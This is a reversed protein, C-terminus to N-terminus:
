KAELAALRAALGATEAQVTALSQELAANKASLEQVAKVLVSTLKSYDLSLKGDGNIGIVEPVYEQVEQALFGIERQEGFRETDIWNYSVPILNSVVELGYTLSQVNTKLTRDSATNTLLGNADSYVARNGTGSLTAVTLGAAAINAQRVGQCYLGLGVGTATDLYVYNGNAGSIILSSGSTGYGASYFRALGGVDLTYGPSATGIGVNGASGIVMRQTPVANNTSSTYFEVQSGGQYSNLNIGVGAYNVQGTGAVADWANTIRVQSPYPSSGVYQPQIRWNTNGALGIITGGAVDLAAAPSVTWIGVNGGAANLCLPSTGTGYIQAQVLGINNTTDYMLALRKNTNTAGVAMIQAAVDGAYNGGTLTVDNASWLKAQGGISATGIGVNGNGLITMMATGSSNSVFSYTNAGASFTNATSAIRIGVAGSNHPAITICGTNITGKTVFLLADGAATLGNYAGGGTNLSFNFSGYVSDTFSGIISSQSTTAYVALPSGPNTTGIGVGTSNISIQSATVGALNLQFVNTTNTGYNTFGIAGAQYQQNSGGIVFNTFAGGSALSPVLATMITTSITSASYVSLTAGPSATGIGVNGSVILGNTPPSFGRQTYRAYTGIGVGGNWVSLVGQNANDGIYVGSYGQLNVAGNISSCGLGYYPYNNSADLMNFGQFLSICGSGGTTNSAGIWTSNIFANATVHLMQGPNTTGIGVFGSSAKQTFNASTILDWYTAYSTPSTRPDVTGEINVFTFTNWFSKIDLNFGNYGNGGYQIYLDINTSSTNSVMFVNMDYGISGGTIQSYKYGGVVGRNTMDAKLYAGGGPSNTGGGIVGEMHFGGLNGGNSDGLLYGIYRFLKVSPSGVTGCVSYISCNFSGGVGSYNINLPLGGSAQIQM